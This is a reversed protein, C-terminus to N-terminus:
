EEDEEEEEEEEDVKKGKSSKTTSNTKSTSPSCDEAKKLTRSSSESDEEDEEEDDDDDDDGSSNAPPKKNAGPGTSTGGSPTGQLFGGAEWDILLKKQSESLTPTPPMPLRAGPKTSAVSAKAGAQIESWTQLAPANPGKSTHCGAVCSKEWFPKIDKEFTVGGSGSGTGTGTGTGTSTGTGTGQLLALASKTNKKTSSKKQSERLSKSSSDDDDDDDDDGASKKVNKQALNKDECSAKQAAPSKKKPGCGSSIPVLGLVILAVTCRSVYAMSEFKNNV